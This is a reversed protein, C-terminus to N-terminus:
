KERKITDTMASMVLDTAVSILLAPLQTRASGCLTVPAIHHGDHTRVLVHSAARQTMFIDSAPTFGSGACRRPRVSWGSMRCGRPM